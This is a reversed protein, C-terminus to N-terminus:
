DHINRRKFHSLFRQWTSPEKQFTYGLRSLEISISKELDEESMGLVRLGKSRAIQLPSYGTLRSVKDDPLAAGVQQLAFM